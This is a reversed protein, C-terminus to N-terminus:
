GVWRRVLDALRADFTVPRHRKGLMGGGLTLGHADWSNAAWEQELKGAELLRYWRRSHWGQGPSFGGPGYRPGM